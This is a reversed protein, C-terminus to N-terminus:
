KDSGKILFTTEPIHLVVIEKYDKISNIENNDIDTIYPREHTINNDSIFDELKDCINELIKIKINALELEKCKQSYIREIGEMDFNNYKM